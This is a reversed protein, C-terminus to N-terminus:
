IGCAEGPVIEVIARNQSQQVGDRIRSSGLPM